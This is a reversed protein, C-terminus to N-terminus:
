CLCCFIRVHLCCFIRVHLRHWIDLLAFTSGHRERECQVGGWYGLKIDELLYRRWVVASCDWSHRHLVSVCFICVHTIKCLKYTCTASLVWTHPAHIVSIHKYLGYVAVHFKTFRSSIANFVQVVCTYNGALSYTHTIEGSWTVKPQSNLEFQCYLCLM